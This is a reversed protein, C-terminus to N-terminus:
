RQALVGSAVRLVAPGLGGDFVERSVTGRGADHKVTTSARSLCHNPYDVRKVRRLLIARDPGRTELTRGSAPRSCPGRRAGRARWRSRVARPAQWSFRGTGSLRGARLGRFCDAIEASRAGPRTVTGRAPRSAGPCVANDRKGRGALGGAASDFGHVILGGREPTVV